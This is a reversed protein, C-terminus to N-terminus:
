SLQEIEKPMFIIKVERFLKVANAATIALFLRKPTEVRPASSAFAVM